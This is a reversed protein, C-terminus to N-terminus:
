SHGSPNIAASDQSNEAYYNWWELGGRALGPSIGHGLRSAGTPAGAREHALGRLRPFPPDCVLLRRRRWGGEGWENPGNFIEAPFRFLCFLSGELYRQEGDEMLGFFGM